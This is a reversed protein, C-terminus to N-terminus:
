VAPAIARRTLGKPGGCRAEYKAQARKEARRVSSPTPQRDLQAGITQAAMPGANPNGASQRVAQELQAIDNSCPGAQAPSILGLAAALVPAVSMRQNM